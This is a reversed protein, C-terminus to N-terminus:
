GLALVSNLYNGTKAAPDLSRPSNRRVAVIALKLGREYLEAPPLELPRVIVILRREESLHPALGFEGVGRTVVIRVYSEANRAAQVTREVQEEIELLGPLHLGIRAASGQMRRLHRDVAFPVGQYTRLVEYVSDGYLFGRDLVPVAAEEPPVLRGDLN